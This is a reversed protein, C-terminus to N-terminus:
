SGSHCCDCENSSTACISRGEMNFTCYGALTHGPENKCKPTDGEEQKGQAFATFSTAAILFMMSLKILKQNM